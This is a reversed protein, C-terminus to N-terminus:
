NGEYFRILDSFILQFIQPPFFILIIAVTMVNIVNELIHITNSLNM